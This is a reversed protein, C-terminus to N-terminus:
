GEACIAGMNSRNVLRNTYTYYTSDAEVDAFQQGSPPDSFGAANSVIKTIQGRTVNNNSWFYPLNGPPV